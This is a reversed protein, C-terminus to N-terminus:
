YPRTPESIHILSLCIASLYLDPQYKELLTHNIIYVIDAGCNIAEQYNSEMNSGTLAICLQKGSEDALSRGAALLEKTSQAISGSEIEGIILIKTSEDM